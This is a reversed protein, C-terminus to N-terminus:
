IKTKSSKKQLQNTREKKKPKKFGKRKIMAERLPLRLYASPILNKKKKLLFITQQRNSELLPVMLKPHLHKPSQKEKKKIIKNSPEKQAFRQCAVKKKQINRHM